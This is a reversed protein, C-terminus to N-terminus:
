GAAPSFSWRESRVRRQSLARRLPSTIEFIVGPDPTDVPEGPLPARQSALYM